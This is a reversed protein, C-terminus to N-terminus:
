DEDFIRTPDQAAHMVSVIVIADDLIEYFILYKEYGKVFWLRLNKLRKKRFTRRTGINPFRQLRELSEYVAHYFDIATDLNTEGIFAFIEKIERDARPTIQLLKM